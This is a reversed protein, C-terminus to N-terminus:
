NTRTSNNSSWSNDVYGVPAVATITVYYNTRRNLGTFQSGSVFNTQTFCQGSMGPGTCAEVTYSTPATGAPPTFSIVLTGRSGGAAVTPNGPVGVQSTDRGSAQTSPGSALYGPSPNATVQVFYLTGQNGVTYSLGTVDAGAVYSANTVCGTSMSSNTCAKVSYTQGSPAGASGTFNISVSGAVSGYGVSVNTPPALQLTAVTPGSVGTTASVFGTATSVATITVYYSSGANLGGLQAGSTYNTTSACNATMAANTCVTATYSSPGTGGQPVVPKTFAATIAGTQTASSTSSFGTPTQVQSTAAHSSQVSPPSALYGTSADATVQVYYTAGPSGPTYSLGTLTTGSNTVTVCGTSMATNTCAKATYTQGSPANASGGYSVTLSGATTGYGLTAAGPATLQVTAMAPGAPPSTAGLYNVSPLATIQVFYTTGPTLGTVDSGSSFNTKVVCNSSMAGDTCAKLNYAQGVPANAAGNFTVNIAGATITSPVVGTVTPTTLQDAYVSFPASSSTLNGTGNPNPESAFLQYGNGVMNISCGSYTVIGATERGTCTSSLAAGSPGTGASITLTIPSLDSTVLVGNDEVELVPQTAFPNNITAGEPQTIFVLQNATTGTVGTTQIVTPNDVVVSDNQTMGTSTDTVVVNILQPNGVNDKTCNPSYVGGSSFEVAPQSGNPAIAATFGAVGIASTLAASSPYGSLSGAPSPCDSFVGPYQQQILSTTTSISSALVADFNALRRHEASANVSTGFATMLAVTALSLVILALLIEILTDGAEDRVARAEPTWRQLAQTVLRKSVTNVRRQDGASARARDTM